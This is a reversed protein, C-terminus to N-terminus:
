LHKARPPRRGVMQTTIMKSDGIVHFRRLNDSKAHKLGNLLGCYEAKNNTTSVAGYAMSALWVSTAATDGAVIKLIVTGSGGPGPNGRSGGDFLLVYIIGKPISSFAFDTHLASLSNVVSTAARRGPEAGDM